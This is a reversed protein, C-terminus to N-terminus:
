ILWGVEAGQQISELINGVKKADGVLFTDINDPIVGFDIIHSVYGAALIISDGEILQKRGLWDVIVGNIQIEIVKSRLLVKVGKEGLREVLLKKTVVGADSLVDDQMEIVTVNLGKDILWESIELGVLGGGVVIISQGLQCREQFVDHPFFVNTLNVGPISPIFPKAGTALVVVDPREEELVRSSFAQNLIIKVGLEVLENKLYTILLKIEIKHKPISAIILQGGLDKEQEILTVKHGRLAAVRATEMGSPGGGIVLVKKVKTVPTKELTGERGVEYNIACRIENGQLIQDFCGRNCFLCGKITKGEHAKKPWFPDAILERGFYILDAKGEAIIKDALEPTKIRGVVGIPITTISKLEKAYKVYCGEPYPPIPAIQEIKEYNGMSLNVEDVGHYQLELVLKKIFDLSYGGDITEEASLRVFLPFCDGVNNRVEDIINLLFRMRNCQSGGFADIRKNIHPSLFQNILYGHAGHVMVADFGAEKARRASQGFSKVLQNIEVISLTRPIIGIFGHGKSPLITSSSSVPYQGIAAVPAIVGAHHLQACIKTGYKHVAKTLKQHEEIMHDETLGLRNISGRGEQSVYNSESIILGVGGKAREVYYAIQKKTLNGTPTSLNTAMPAMVIRNELIMSGIKIPSFLNSFKKM